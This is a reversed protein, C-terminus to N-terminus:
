RDGSPAQTWPRLVLSPLLGDRGMKWFIRSVAVVTV